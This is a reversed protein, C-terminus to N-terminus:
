LSYHTTHHTMALDIGMTDESTLAPVAAAAIHQASYRYRCISSLRLVRCLINGIRRVQAKAALLAVVFDRM